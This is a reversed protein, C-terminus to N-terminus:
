KIVEIGLSRPMPVAIEQTISGDPMRIPYREQGDFDSFHCTLPKPGFEFWRPQFHAIVGAEGSVGPDLNGSADKCFPYVEDQSGRRNYVTLRPTVPAPPNYRVREPTAARAALEARENREAQAVGAEYYDLVALYGVVIGLVIMAKIWWPLKGSHGNAPASM